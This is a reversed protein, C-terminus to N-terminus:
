QQGCCKMDQLCLELGKKWDPLAIGFQCSLSDAVLRSNKPRPAPRAYPETPIARLRPISTASLLGQSVAFELIAVAFGHWTTEGAATLHYTGSMRRGLAREAVARRIVQATADAINRAWNPTGFQDAVISLEDRECALRLITRVFNQGRAAYVWSTRFILYECGSDCIAVEGALKSRGYANIPRPPDNEVYATAKSGDFVYDTSYHVLLAGAARAANALAGVATSNVIRALDEEEEARDVATYAAANVIIDPRVKDVLDGVDAPQSLDCRARDFAIVEGFPMLSRVLEWGVQGNAGTVMLMM